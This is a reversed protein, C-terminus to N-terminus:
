SRLVDTRLQRLIFKTHHPRCYIFVCCKNTVIQLNLQPREANMARVVNNGYIVIFIYSISHVSFM